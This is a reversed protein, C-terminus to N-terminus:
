NLLILWSCKFLVVWDVPVTSYQRMASKALSRASSRKNGWGNRNLLNCGGGHYKKPCHSAGLSGCCAAISCICTDDLSLKGVIWLGWFVAWFRQRIYTLCSSVSNAVIFLCSTHFYNNGSSFIYALGKVAWLWGEDLSNLMNTCLAIGNRFLLISKAGQVPHLCWCEKYCSDRM